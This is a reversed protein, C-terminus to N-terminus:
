TGLHKRSNDVFGSWSDLGLRHDRAVLAATPWLVALALLCGLAFRKHEASLVWRRARWMGVLAKLVLGSVAVAPFIRLLGAYAFGFGGSVLRGPRVLCISLVLVFLWDMRLFAGGNWWYRAPLNTGWYLLAVCMARWGFAWGVVGWMVCLLFSDLIGLFRIYGSSAPALNALIGGAIGWVPTGNYGHDIAATEDRA